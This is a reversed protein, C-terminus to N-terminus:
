ALGARLFDGRVAGIAPGVRWQASPWILEGDPHAGPDALARFTVWLPLHDSIWWSMEHRTLARDWWAPPTSAASRAPQAWRCSRSRPLLTRERAHPQLSSWSFDFSRTLVVHLTEHVTLGPRRSRSTLHRLWRPGRDRICM